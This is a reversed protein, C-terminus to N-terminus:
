TTKKEALSKIASVDKSFCNGGFGCGANLFERNLRHDLGVGDAVEYTDIGLKKCLNGIENIFSIKTALLSNSAYKIM